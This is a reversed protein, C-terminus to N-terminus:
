GFNYDPFICDLNFDEEYYGDFDLDTNTVIIHDSYTEKVVGNSIKKMADFDTNKIKVKQGVHFLHTLDAM